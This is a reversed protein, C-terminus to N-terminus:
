GGARLGVLARAVVIGLYCGGLCAGTTLVVNTSARLWAGEEALRLTEYSFSSYTTFGGLVGVTLALRATSPLLLTTLGVEQITGILFSGVVNVALTGYPFGSGLWSALLGAAFYRLGTGLAGGLCILLLRM